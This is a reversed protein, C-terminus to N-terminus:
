AVKYWVVPRTEAVALNVECSNSSILTYEVKIIGKSHLTNISRANFLRELQRDTVKGNEKLYEVIQTQAATLKM